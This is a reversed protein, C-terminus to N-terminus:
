SPLINAIRAIVLVATVLSAISQAMFLAKAWESLPMTDTPSFAAANTFSTYVYDFFSPAWDAETSDPNIMQPFLFDPARHNPLGRAVPGGRDLEWYWLAFVLVNTLWIQASWIILNQATIKHGNVAASSVLAHVLLLLSGLNAVNMIAILSIALRRQWRYEMDEIQGAVLLALFLAGEIAPVIWVRGYYLHGPLTVYLLLSALIALLAQWRGAQRVAVGWAAERKKQADEAAPPDTSAGSENKM